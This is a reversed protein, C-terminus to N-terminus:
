LLVALMLLLAWAILGAGIVIQVIGAVSVDERTHCLGEIGRYIIGCSLGLAVLSLIANFTLSPVLLGLSSLWLPVPAIAALLYADHNDIHLGNSQAVERILWGMVLLTVMEALFFVGAIPGWDRGAAQQLFVEPYHTGAYILMAPPLLSLPLVMFAFLKALRPHVREIEPWGRDASFPLQSLTSLKM